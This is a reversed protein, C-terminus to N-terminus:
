KTEPARKKEEELLGRLYATLDLAELYADLLFSRGNEAQLPQGYKRLGFEKREKLDQIVLDHCSPNDNPVPLPQDTEPDRVDSM